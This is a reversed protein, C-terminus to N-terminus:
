SARMWPLMRHLVPHGDFQHKVAGAIHLLLLGIMAFATIEHAEHWFDAAAEDRTVPLFPIPFLGFFDIPWRQMGEPTMAGVSSMWWGSLPVLIMLVYFGWHTLHSLGIEWGKLGAASSPPRHTLRWYLRFVSLFLILIGSSKHMGMALPIMSKPLAEHTLGGVLNGLILLGIVWHLRLAMKSYTQQDTM